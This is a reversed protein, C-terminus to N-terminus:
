RFFKRETIQSNVFIRYSFYWFLAALAILIVSTAIEVQTVSVSQLFSLLANNDFDFNIYGAFFFFLAGLIMAIAWQVFLTKFFPHRYFSVGGLVFISQYCLFSAISMLPVANWLYEGSEDYIRPVTFNTRIIEAVNDLSWSLLADNMGFILVILLRILEALLIAVLLMVIAGLTVYVTRSVFKELNTAPLMLYSIRKEKTNMVRMIRSNLWIFAISCFFTMSHAVSRCFDNFLVEDNGMYRVESEFMPVVFFVLVFGLTELLLTLNQKWDGLVDLKLVQVFRNFNFHSTTNM